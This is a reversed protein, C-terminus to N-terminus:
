IGATVSWFHLGDYDLLVNCKVIAGNGLGTVVPDVLILEAGQYVVVSISIRRGNLQTAFYAQLPAVLNTGDAAALDIMAGSALNASARVTSLMTAEADTSPIGKQALQHVIARIACDNGIRELPPRSNTESPSLGDPSGGRLGFAVFPPQSQAPAAPAQVFGPRDSEIKTRGSALVVLPDFQPAPM